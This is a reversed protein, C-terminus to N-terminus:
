STVSILLEPPARPKRVLLDEILAESRFRLHRPCPVLKFVSARLCSPLFESSSRRHLAEAGLVSLVPARWGMSGSIGGTTEAGRRERRQREKVLLLRSGKRLFSNIFDGFM